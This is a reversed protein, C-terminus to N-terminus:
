AKEGQNGIHEMNEQAGGHAAAKDSDTGPKALIRSFFEM